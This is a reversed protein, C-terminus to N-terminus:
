SLIEIKKEFLIIGIANPHKKDIESFSSAVVYNDEIWDNVQNSRQYKVKYLNM